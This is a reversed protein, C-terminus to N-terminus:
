HFSLNLVAKAKASCRKIQGYKVHQAAGPQIQVFHLQVLRLGGVVLALSVLEDDTTPWWNWCNTSSVGSNMTLVSM